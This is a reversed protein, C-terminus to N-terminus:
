RLLKQFIYNVIGFLVVAAIYTGIGEITLNVTSFNLIEVINQGLYLIVANVVIMFLGATLFIFPLSLLKLIPKVILNLLGIIVGVLAYGYWGGTVIFGDLLQTVAYVNITNVVLFFAIQYM